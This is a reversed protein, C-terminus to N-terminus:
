NSIGSKSKTLFKKVIYEFIIKAYIEFAKLSNTLYRRTISLRKRKGKYGTKTKYDEDPYLNNHVVLNRRYFCEKFVKWNDNSSLDLKFYDKLSHNIQDISGRLISKIEDQIIYDKLDEFKKYSLITEYDITKQKRRLCRPEWSFIDELIHALFGEFSAILYVLSMEKIFMLLNFNLPDFMRSLIQAIQPKRTKLTRRGRKKLQELDMHQLFNDFEKKDEEDM